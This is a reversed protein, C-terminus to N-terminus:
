RITEHATPTKTVGGGGGSVSSPRNRSNSSSPSHSASDDHRATTDTRSTILPPPPTNQRQKQRTKGPVTCLAEDGAGNQHNKESTKSSPSYGRVRKLAECYSQTSCEIVAGRRQLLLFIQRRRTRRTESVPVSKSSSVLDRSVSNLGVRIEWNFFRLSSITDGIRRLLWM